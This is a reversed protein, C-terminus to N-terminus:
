SVARVWLNQLLAEQFFKRAATEDNLIADHYHGIEDWADAFQPDIAIAQQYSHLAEELSHSSSEPGLQILDGRMVWLCASLPFAQVAEDAFALTELTADGEFPWRAQLASIYESETM